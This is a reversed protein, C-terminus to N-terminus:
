YRARIWSASSIEKSNLFVKVTVRLFGSNSGVVQEFNDQSVNEVTIQESFAAFENLDDGEANIPPSFIVGDFHELSYLDDYDAVTSRERIQEVLFEATSLDTGFANTKTFVGNAAVLSAIVLGVLLIAILVEILTFGGNKMTHNPMFYGGNPRKTLQWVSYEKNAALLV